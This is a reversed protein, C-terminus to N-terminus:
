RKIQTLATIDSGLSPMGLSASANTLLARWNGASRVFGAVQQAQNYVQRGQQVVQAFQNYEAALQAWWGPGPEVTDEVGFIAFAPMAALGIVAVGLLLKRKM